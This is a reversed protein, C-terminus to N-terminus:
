VAILYALNLNLLFSSNKKKPPPPRSKKVSGTDCRASHWIKPFASNCYTYLSCLFWGLLVTWRWDECSSHHFFCMVSNAYCSPRTVLLYAYVSQLDGQEVRVASDYTSVLLVPLMNIRTRIHSAFDELKEVVTRRSGFVGYWCFLLLQYRSGWHSSGTAWGAGLRCAGYRLSLDM